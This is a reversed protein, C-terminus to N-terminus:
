ALSSINSASVRSLYYCVVVIDVLNCPPDDAFPKQFLEAEGLRGFVEDGLARGSARRLSRCSCAGCYLASVLFSGLPSFGNSRASPVSNESALTEEHVYFSVTRM